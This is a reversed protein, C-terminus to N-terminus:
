LQAVTVIGGDSFKVKFADDTADYWRVCGDTPTTPESEPDYKLATGLEDTGGYGHTGSHTKPDQPDALDGSLGQVSLEDGGGNEHRTNHSDFESQTPADISITLTSNADDYSVTVQSGGTILAAVTDEVEEENLGTTDITLTDNADDYSTTINTGGVLLNNVFDDVAEEIPPQPDSLVGSLGEVSLEDVGGSEHRTNHNKQDDVHANWEASTLEGEPEGPNVTKDDDWAM